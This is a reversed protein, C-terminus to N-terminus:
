KRGKAENRGLEILRRVEFRDEVSESEIMFRLKKAKIKGLQYRYGANIYAAETQKM